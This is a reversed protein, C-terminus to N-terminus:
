MDGRCSPPRLLVGDDPGGHQHARRAAHDESHSDQRQAEPEGSPHLAGVHVALPHGPVREQGGLELAAPDGLLEVVPDDLVEGARPEHQRQDGFPDRSFRADGSSPRRSARM